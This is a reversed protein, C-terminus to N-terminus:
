STKCCTAGKPTVLTLALQVGRAPLLEVHCAGLTVHHPACTRVGRAPFNVAPIYVHTPITYLLCFANEFMQYIRRLPKLLFYVTLQYKFRKM